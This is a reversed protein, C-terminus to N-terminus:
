DEPPCEPCTDGMSALVERVEAVAQDAFLGKPPDHGVACERAHPDGFLRRRLLAEAARGDLHACVRDGISSRTEIGGRQRLLKRGFGQGPKRRGRGALVEDSGPALSIVAHGAEHVAVRRLTADDLDPRPVIIDVLDGYRLSRGAECAASRAQAVV